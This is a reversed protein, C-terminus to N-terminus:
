FILVNRSSALLLQLETSSCSITPLILDTAILGYDLLAQGEIFVQDIDYLGLAQLMAQTGKLALVEPQQKPNLQLIGAGLFVLGTRQEFTGSVLSLDLGEKALSATLPPQTFIVLLDFRNTSSM